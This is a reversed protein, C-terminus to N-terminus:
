RHVRARMGFAFLGILLPGLVRAAIQIWEAGISASVGSSTPLLFASRLVFVLCEEFSAAVLIHHTADKGPLVQHILDGCDIAVAALAALFVFLLFPRSPRVGYGGFLRYFELLLYTGAHLGWQGPGGWEGLHARAALRRMEMEGYYFDAAGPADRSDERVKRLGRYIRALEGPGVPRAHMGALLRTAPPNWEAGSTPKARMAHEEAVVERHTRAGRPAHQFSIGSDIRLGDIGEAGEFRLARVDVGAVVVSALDAGRVSVLRPPTTKVGIPQPATLILRSDNQLRDMMVDGGSVTIRLPVLFRAESFDITNAALVFACPSRIIASRLDISGVAHFPGFRDAANITVDGFYASGGCSFQGVDILGDFSAVTFIANESVRAGHLSVSGLFHASRMELDGNVRWETLRARDGFTAGVFSPDAEFRARAMQLKEGFYAGSFDVTSGFYVETFGARPGFRASPFRAQIAFWAKTFSAEAGFRAAFFQSSRFKSHAFRARDGFTASHFDAKQGFDVREFNADDGFCADQFPARTFSSGAFTVRDGFRCEQFTKGKFSCNSFDCDDGFGSDDFRWRHFHKRGSEDTAAIERLRKVHNQLFELGCADIGEDKEVAGGLAAFDARDLQSQTLRYV